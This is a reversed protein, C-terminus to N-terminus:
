AILGGLLNISEFVTKRFLYFDMKNLVALGELKVLLQLFQPNHFFIENMGAIELIVTNLQKKWNENNEFMPILKWVQNILRTINAQLSEESILLNYKNDTIDIM